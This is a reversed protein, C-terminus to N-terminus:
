KKSLANYIVLPLWFLLYMFIIEKPDRNELDRREIYFEKPVRNSLKCRVFSEGIEVPILYLGRIEKNPPLKFLEGSDYNDYEYFYFPRDPFTFYKGIALTRKHMWHRQKDTIKM